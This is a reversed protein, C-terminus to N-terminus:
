PKKEPTVGALMKKAADSKRWANWKALAADRDKDSLFFLTYVYYLMRPDERVHQYGYEKLNQKTLHVLMALVTDQVRIQIPKKSIRRDHHTHMVDTEDLYRELLPLDNLDGNKALVVAATYVQRGNVSADNLTKRALSVATKMRKAQLCLELALGSTYGGRRSRAWEDLLKGMLPDKYDAKAYNQLSYVRAVFAVEATEDLFKGNTMFFWMAVTSQDFRTQNNFPTFRQQRVKELHEMLRKRSDESLGGTLKCTSLLAAHKRFMAAYFARSKSTDGVLDAFEKWNPPATAGPKGAVFERLSAEFGTHLIQQLLEHARLRTELDPERLGTMLAGRAVAGHALLWAAAAERDRFNEAGLQRVYHLAQEETSGTPPRDDAWASGLPATSVVILWGTALGCLLIARRVSSPKQQPMFRAFM